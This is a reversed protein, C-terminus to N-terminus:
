VISTSSPQNGANSLGEKSNKTSNESGDALTLKRPWLLRKLWLSRIMTGFVVIWAIIVLCAITTGFIEIAKSDFARAIEQTATVMATNPFVFSYRGDNSSLLLAILSRVM